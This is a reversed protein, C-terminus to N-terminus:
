YWTFSRRDSHSRGSGSGCTGGLPASTILYCTNIIIVTATVVTVTFSLRALASSATPELTILFYSMSVFDLPM